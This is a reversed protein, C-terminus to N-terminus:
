FKEIDVNLEQMGNRIQLIMYMKLKLPFRHLKRSLYEFYCRNSLIRFINENDSNIMPIRFNAIEDAFLIKVLIM